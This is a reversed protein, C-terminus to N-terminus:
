NKLKGTFSCGKLYFNHYKEKEREHNYQEGLKGKRDELYLKEAVKTADGMNKAQVCFSEHFDEEILYINMKDRKEKVM